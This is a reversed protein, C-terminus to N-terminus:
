HLLYGEIDPFVEQVARLQFPVRSIFVSQVQEAEARLM